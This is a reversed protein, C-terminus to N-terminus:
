QTDDQELNAVWVNALAGGDVGEELALLYRDRRSWSSRFVELNAQKLANRREGRSQRHRVQM